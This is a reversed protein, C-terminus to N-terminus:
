SASPHASQRSRSVARGVSKPLIFGYRLLERVHPLHTAIIRSLQLHRERALRALIVRLASRGDLRMVIESLLPDVGSFIYKLGSDRCFESAIIKWHRGKRASKQVIAIDPAIAFKQQLLFEDAASDFRVRLDFITAVSSGYPESRDDPADDFWLHNPRSTCRRLTLLGTGIATIKRQQFYALGQCRLADVDTDQVEPLDACWASVYDEPSEEEARLCWVDCGIGSFATALRARWDQGETQIWSLTMHFFGEEELFCSADRALQICFSDDRQGSHQYLIRNVLPDRVPCIFFPPNCVILDFRLKHVPEFLDGQLCTINSFFNWRANFDALQVAEPNVDVAYVRDARPALLVALFGCGTGLDLANRARRPNILKALELSSGSIRMVLNEPRPPLTLQGVAFLHNRFPQLLINTVVQNDELRCFGTSLLQELTLPRLAQQLLDAPVPDQEHFVKLLTHLLSGSPIDPSIAPSMDEVTAFNGANFYGSELLLSRLQQLIPSDSDLQPLRNAPYAIFCRRTRFSYLSHRQLACSRLANLLFQPFPRQARQM